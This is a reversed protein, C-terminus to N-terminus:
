QEGLNLYKRVKDESNLMSRKMDMEELSFTNNKYVKEIRFKGEMYDVDLYLVSEDSSISITHILNDSIRVEELTTKYM